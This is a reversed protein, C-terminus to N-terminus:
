KGKRMRRELNRKITKLAEEVSMTGAQMEEVANDMEELYLHWLPFKPCFFMESEKLVEMIKRSYRRKKFFSSPTYEEKLPSLQGGSLKILNEPKSLFELFKKAGEVNKAGVPISFVDVEVYCRKKGDISPLPAFGLEADPAYLRFVHTVWDGDYFIALKGSVFPNSASWYPGYGGRFKEVKEMGFNKLYDLVWKFTKVAEPSDITINGTEPDILKGGFHYVWVYPWNWQPVLPDFGWRVLNGEEDYKTLKKSYEVLEELSQPGKDPDLGAKKFVDKNWWIGFISVKIPFAYIHGNYKVSEVVFDQFQELNVNMDDLPMFGGMAVIPAIYQDNAHVLDPPNGAALATTFKVALNSVSIVKATYEEQSQNFKKVLDEIIRYEDGTWTVWIEVVSRSFALVVLFTMLLILLKRM